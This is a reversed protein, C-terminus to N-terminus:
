RSGPTESPGPRRPSEPCPPMRSTSATAPRHISPRARGNHASTGTTNHRNLQFNLFHNLPDLPRFRASLFDPAFPEVFSRRWQLASSLVIGSRRSKISSGSRSSRHPLASPASCTDGTALAAKGPHLAPLAAIEFSAFHLLPDLLPEKGLDFVEAFRTNWLRAASSALRVMPWDLLILVMM